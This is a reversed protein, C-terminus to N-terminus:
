KPFRLEARVDTEAVEVSIRAETGLDVAAIRIDGPGPSLAISRMANEVLPQLCL